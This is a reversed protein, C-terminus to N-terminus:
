EMALFWFPADCARVFHVCHLNDMLRYYLPGRDIISGDQAVSNYLGVLRQRYQTVRSQRHLCHQLMACTQIKHYEYLAAVMAASNFERLRTPHLCQDIDYLLHLCSFVRLRMRDADLAAQM